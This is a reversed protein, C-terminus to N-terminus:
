LRLLLCDLGSIIVMLGEVDRRLLPLLWSLYLLLLYMTIRSVCQGHQLVLPCRSQGGQLSHHSPVVVSVVGSVQVGIRAVVIIISLRSLSGERLLQQTSLALVRQASRVGEATSCAFIYPRACHHRMLPLETM